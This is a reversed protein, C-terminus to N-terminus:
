EITVNEFGRELIESLRRLCKVVIVRRCEYFIGRRKEVKWSSSKDHGRLEALDVSTQCELHSILKKLKKIM